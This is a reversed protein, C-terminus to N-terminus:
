KEEKWLDIELGTAGIIGIMTDIRPLDIHNM